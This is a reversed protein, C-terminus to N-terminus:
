VPLIRKLTSKVTVYGYIFTTGFCMAPYVFWAIDRIKIFGRISDILPFVVSLSYLVFLAVRPRDGPLMVSWRRKAYDEFHYKDVFRKRRKLFDGLGKSHTLHIISNKVFGFKNYGAMVMDVMVDIPYHNGPDAKAYKIVKSRRMLTANTGISPIKRPDKEFEVKFYNGMDVAEGLLSWEKSTQRMRDAKGLFYPLPESTGYLGFYRDMLSYKKNYDYYCTTTAIIEKDSFPEVMDLLWDKYPIYNDHDFIMALEGKAKNFAVGRNYEANQKNEPVKVVKAKYKNAIKLTNDKSGGDGLVIEIKSQPYNQDRILKLCRDLLKGSNYTAIVFSITPKKM